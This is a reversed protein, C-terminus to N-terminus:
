EISLLVRAIVGGSPYLFDEGEFEVSYEQGSINLHELVDDVIFPLSIGEAVDFYEEDSEIESLVYLYHHVGDTDTIFGTGEDDSLHGDKDIEFDCIGFGGTCLQKHSAIRFKILYGQIPDVIPPEFNRIAVNENVGEYSYDEQDLTSCSALIIVLFVLHSYNKMKPVLNVYHTDM